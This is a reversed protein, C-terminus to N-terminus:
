SAGVLGEKQLHAGLMTRARHLQVWVNTQTMGLKECLTATDDGYIERLVFLRSTREPLKRLGYQVAALFEEELCLEEPDRSDGGRQRQVRQAADHHENAEEAETSLARDHNQKRIVDVIGNKLIATLWTRLSCDGRFSKRQEYAKLLTCSVCDEALTRSHLQLQAIRLLYARHEALTEFGIQAQVTEIQKRM